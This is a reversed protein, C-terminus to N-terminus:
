QIARLIDQYYYSIRTSIPIVCFNEGIYYSSSFIGIQFWQLESNRCVLAGGSDGKCIKTDKKATLACLQKDYAVKFNEEGRGTLNVFLKKCDSETIPKIRAKMLVPKPWGLTNGNSPYGTFVCVDYLSEAVNLSNLCVPRISLSFVLPKSLKLLLIDNLYATYNFNFHRIEDVTISEVDPNMKINTGAQVRVINKNFTESRGWLYTPLKGGRLVGPRAMAM